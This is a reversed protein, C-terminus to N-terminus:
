SNLKFFLSDDFRELYMSLNDGGTPTCYTNNNILASYPCRSPPCSARKYCTVCKEKTELYPMIWKTHNDNLIMDGSDNLKGINNIPFDFHVTCKYLTGDSGIVFSNSKGAYCMNLECQLENFHGSKGLTIGYEKMKKLVTEYPSTILEGSFYKVRDGGWDGAQQIYLSFKPDDGFNNKYFCLYEDINELITKTVNTRINIITGLARRKKIELLNNVIKDFTGKGNALVRQNDHQTRFGDLTVQYTLVKLKYLKDFVDPTLDYGNTTIGSVYIRKAAKCIKIFNDSLYEIIDLALLPEGGFWSVSMGVYNSINKKVYKIISDQLEKSMRGKEFKEYCYKCRFNCLETPMIILNLYRKDLINAARKIKLEYDEDRDNPVLYGRNFLETRIYDPIDNASRSGNLVSIVDEKISKDVILLSDVGSMSNYMRLTGNNCNLFYNFESLKYEM